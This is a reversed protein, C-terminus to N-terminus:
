ISIVKILLAVFISHVMIIYFIDMSVVIAIPKDKVNRANNFEVLNVFQCIM